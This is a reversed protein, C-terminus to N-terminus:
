YSYTTKTILLEKSKSGWDHWRWVFVLNDYTLSEAAIADPAEGKMVFTWAGGTVRDHDGDSHRERCKEDQECSPLRRFGQVYGIGACELSIIEVLWSNLHNYCGSIGCVWMERRYCIITSLVSIYITQKVIRIQSCVCSAVRQWIIIERCGTVKVIRIGHFRRRAGLLYCLLACRLGCGYATWRSHMM